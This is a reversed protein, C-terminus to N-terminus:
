TPPLRQLLAEVMATDRRAGLRTFLARAEYLSQISLPTDNDQNRLQLASALFLHAKATEYPQGVRNFTDRAQTFHGVAEDLRGLALAHFGQACRSMAHWTGEGWSAVVRKTKELFSQAEDPLGAHSLVEVAMPYFHVNCTACEGYRELAALGDEMYGRAAPLDQRELASRALMAYLRGVLHAAMPAREAAALGQQLREIARVDNGRNLDLEGLRQWALAEGSLSTVERHLSISTALRDEAEPYRGELLAVEGLLCQCLALARRAGMKEAVALTEAAFTRVRAYDVDGYLHYEALCLHVDFSQPVRADWESSGVLEIAYRLGRKWEGQTHFVLALLEYARAVADASGLREALHLSAEATQKAEETAQRGWAEHGKV